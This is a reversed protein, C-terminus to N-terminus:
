VAALCVPLPDSHSARVIPLTRMVSVAARHAGGYRKWYWKSALLNGMSVWLKRVVPVLFAIPFIILLSHLSLQSVILIAVALLKLSLPLNRWKGRAVFIAAHLKSSWGVAKHVTKDSLVVSSAYGLGVGAIASSLRSLRRWGFSRALVGLSSSVGRILGNAVVALGNWLFRASAGLAGRGTLYYIAIFAVVLLVAFTAYWGADRRLHM